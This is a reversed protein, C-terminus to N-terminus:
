GPRLRRFAFGSRAGQGSPRRAPDWVSDGVVISDRLRIDRTYRTTRAHRVRRPTHARTHGRHSDRPTCGCRPLATVTEAVSGGTSVMDEVCPM